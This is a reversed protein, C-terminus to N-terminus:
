WGRTQRAEVHLRSVAQDYTLKEPGHMLEALRQDIDQIDDSENVRADGRNLEEEDAPKRTVDPNEFASHSASSPTWAPTPNGYGKGVPRGLKEEIEKIADARSCNKEKMLLAVARDYVAQTPRGHTQNEYESQSSGENGHAKQYYGEGAPLEANARASRKQMDERDRALGENLMRAGLPTQMFKGMAEGESALPFAVSAAHKFIADYAAPGIQGSKRLRIADAMGKHFEGSSFHKMITETQM